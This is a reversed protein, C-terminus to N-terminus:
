GILVEIEVQRCCCCLLSVVYFWNKLAWAYTHTRMYTHLMRTVTCKWSYICM